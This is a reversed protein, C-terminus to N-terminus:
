FSGQLSAAGGSAIPTASLTLATTPDKPATLYLVISSAFAAAGVGFWVGAYTGASSRRDRSIANNKADLYAAGIAVSVAGAGLLGIGVYTRM